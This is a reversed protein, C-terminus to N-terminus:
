SWFGRHARFFPIYFGGNSSFCYSYAETYEARYITVTSACFGMSCLYTGVSTYFILTYDSTAGPNLASTLM